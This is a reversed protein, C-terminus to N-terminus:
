RARHTYWDTHWDTRALGSVSGILVSTVQYSHAHHYVMCSTVNSMSRQGQSSKLIQSPSVSHSLDVQWATFAIVALGYRWVYSTPVFSLACM